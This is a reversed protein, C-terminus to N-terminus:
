GSGMVASRPLLQQLTGTMSIMSARNRSSPECCKGVRMKRQELVAAFITAQDLSRRGQARLERVAQRHEWLSIPPLRLDRYPVQWYHGQKDQWFIRSLDRPDYKILVLEKTRGALPSLVNAWYHINFLRIGDRRILRRESPLFDLFFTEADAPQRPQRRRRNLGEMWAQIPPRQLASHISHHYVGAIQLALSRELEALTLRATKHSRYAGRDTVSSFTTGPLLHVAGMVTGILREIHGGFHPQKPPRHQLAIGYEQTGRVLAQSDFEPANDLHLTEPVGAVPWSLDLQRDALWLDKPLVAHTLVLAVSIAAPADLSVYFGTVVRSAVDIALTLWPRGLVRRQSEDVVMVDLQTHDIQVLDLPLLEDSHWPRVPRYLEQAKRAGLRTKTILQPDLEALRRKITRFTPAPLKETECNLAIERVLARISPRQPSLYFTKIAQEVIAEVRPNLLRLSRPRGAKALLLSSTQPRQRFRAILRYTVSRGLGLIKPARDVQL